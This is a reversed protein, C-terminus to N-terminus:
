ISYLTIKGEYVNLPSFMKAQIAWADETLLRKWSIQPLQHGTKKEPITGIIGKSSKLM